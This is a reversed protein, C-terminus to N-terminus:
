AVLDALTMGLYRLPSSGSTPPPPQWCLNVRQTVHNQHYVTYSCDVVIEVQLNEVKAHEDEDRQVLIICRLNTDTQLVRRLDSAGLSIWLNMFNRRGLTM